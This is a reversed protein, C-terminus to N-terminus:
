LRSTQMHCAEVPAGDNREPLDDRRNTVSNLPLDTTRHFCGDIGLVRM